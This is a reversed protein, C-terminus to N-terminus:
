TLISDNERDWILGLLKVKSPTVEGGDIHKQLDIDNTIFQQLSFQYPAFIEELNSYARQLESSDNTSFALNDM